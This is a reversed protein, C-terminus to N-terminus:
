FQHLRDGTVDLLFGGLKPVVMAGGLDWVRGLTLLAKSVLPMAARSKGGSRQVLSHKRSRRVRVPLYPGGGKLICVDVGAEDPRSVIHGEMRKGLDGRQRVGLM